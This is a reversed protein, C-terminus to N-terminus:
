PHTRLAKARREMLKRVADSKHTKGCPCMDEFFDLIGELTLGRLHESDALTLLNRHLFHVRPKPAFEVGYYDIAYAGDIARLIKRWASTGAGHARAAQKLADKYSGDNQDEYVVGIIKEDVLETLSQPPPSPPPLKISKRIKPHNQLQEEIQAFLYWTNIPYSDPHKKDQKWAWELGKAGEEFVSQIRPSLLGKWRHQNKSVRLM